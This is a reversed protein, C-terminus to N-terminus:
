IVLQPERRPIDSDRIEEWAECVTTISDSLEKSDYLVSENKAIGSALVASVPSLKVDQGPFDQRLTEELQDKLSFLSLYFDDSLKRGQDLAHKMTGSEYKGCLSPKEADLKKLLLVASGDQRFIDLLQTNSNMLRGYLSVGKALQETLSAARPSLEIQPPTDLKDADIDKAPAGSCATMFALSSVTVLREFTNM